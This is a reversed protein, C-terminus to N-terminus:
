QRYVLLCIQLDGGQMNASRDDLETLTQRPEDNNQNTPKGSYKEDDEM